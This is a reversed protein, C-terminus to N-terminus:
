GFYYKATMLRMAMTWSDSLDNDIMNVKSHQVYSTLM